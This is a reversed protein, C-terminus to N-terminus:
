LAIGFPTKGEKSAVSCSVNYKMLMKAIRVHWDTIDARKKQVQELTLWVWNNEDEDYYNQVVMKDIDLKVLHHLPTFGNVDAINPDAGKDKIM